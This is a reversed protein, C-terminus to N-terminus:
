DTQDGRRKRPTLGYQKAKDFFTRVPMSLLQAARTQNGGSAELASRMRAVELERIEEALPRFSPEAPETAGAEPAEAPAATARARAGGLRDIVHVATLVEDPYAAAAYHMLNRLERVNGPWAYALLASRAGESITMPKRGSRECAEDLFASALLPLERPRERLPPLHVTAASLRFFLDARFRGAAVEVELDRNTAAVIRVDVERERVDGVRTIRHTEIARLLKAQIPLTLEGVEDLFLTSGAARELLGIKAGVAGTFAGKEHGFLESEVLSEQIAACNLSVLPRGRQRSLFHIAMAAIEKGCGTEGTILVPLETPALREMLAYLRVMAPDAVIVRQTGFTLTQYAYAAAAIEGADASSAANDARALLADADCGDSPCTAHGIRLEGALAHLRAQLRGAVRHADSGVVEPLLIHLISAGSWAAADLRRLHPALAREIGRRELIPEPWLLSLVTFAREYRVARDIEDDVRQRLTPADVVAIPTTASTTHLILTTKHITITDGPNVPCESDIREDNVCTGNQSGLDTITIADRTIQLRAHHRSVAVDDIRLAASQSRGIMVEGEEPLEHMWSSAGSFVLLHRREIATVPLARDDQVDSPPTGVHTSLSEPTSEPEM